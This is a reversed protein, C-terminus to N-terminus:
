KGNQEFWQVTCAYAFRVLTCFNDCTYKYRVHLGVHLHLLLLVAICSLVVYYLTSEMYDSLIIM